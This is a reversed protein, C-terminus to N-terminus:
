IMRGIFLGFAFAGGMFLTGFFLWGLCTPRGMLGYKDYMFQRNAFWSADEVFGDPPNTDKFLTM